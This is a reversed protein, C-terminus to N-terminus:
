VNQINDPIAIGASRLAESFQRGSRQLVLDHAIGDNTVIRFASDPRAHLVRLSFRLSLLRLERVSEISISVCVSPEGM